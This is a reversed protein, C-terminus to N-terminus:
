RHVFGATWLELHVLLATFIGFYLGESWWKKAEATLPMFIHWFCSITVTQNRPDGNTTTVVRGPIWLYFIFVICLFWNILIWPLFLYVFDQCASLFSVVLSYCNMYSCCCVIVWQFFILFFVLNMFDLRNYTFLGPTKSWWTSGQVLNVLLILIKILVSLRYCISTTAVIKILWVTKEALVIIQTIILWARSGQIHIEGIENWVSGQTRWVLMVMSILHWDISLRPPGHLLPSYRSTGSSGSPINAKSVSLRSDPWLWPEVVDGPRERCPDMGVKLFHTACCGRACRGITMETEKEELPQKGELPWDDAQM